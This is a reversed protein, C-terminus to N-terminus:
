SRSISRARAAYLRHAGVPRFGLTELVDKPIESPHVKPLRFTRMGQASVRSLLRRLRGGDDEIFSRLSMVEAVPPTGRAGPAAASGPGMAGGRSAGPPPGSLRMQHGSDSGYTVFGQQLLPAGGRGLGGTLMPITGNM